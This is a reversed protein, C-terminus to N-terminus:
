LRCIWFKQTLADTGCQHSFKGIPGNSRVALAQELLQNRAKWRLDSAHLRADAPTITRPCLYGDSTGPNLCVLIARMAGGAEMLSPTVKSSPGLALTMREGLPSAVPSAEERSLRAAFVPM